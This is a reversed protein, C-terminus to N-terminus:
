RSKGGINLYESQIERKSHQGGWGWGWSFSPEEKPGATSGVTPASDSGGM